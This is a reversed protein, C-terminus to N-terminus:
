SITIRYQRGGANTGTHVWTTYNVSNSFLTYTTGSSSWDLMSLPEYQGTASSYASVGTVTGMDDPISFSHKSGSGETFTLDFDLSSTSLAVLSLQTDITSNATNENTYVPYTGSLYKIRSVTGAPFPTSFANRLSDYMQPGEAHTIVLTFKNGTTGSGVVHNTVTHSTGSAGSESVNNVKYDYDTPAGATNTDAATGQDDTYPSWTTSITGPVFNGSLSVSISDGIIAINPSVALGASPNSFTPDQTPFFMAQIIEQFTKGELKSLGTADNSIGGIQQPNISSGDTTTPASFLAPASEQQQAGGEPVDSEIPMSEWGTGTYMEVRGTDVNFIMTSTSPTMADRQITTMSNFDIRDTVISDTKFSSM